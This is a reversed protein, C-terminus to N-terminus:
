TLSSHLHYPKPRGVCVLPRTKLRAGYAEGKAESARLQNVAEMLWQPCHGAKRRETGIPESRFIFMCGVMNDFGNKSQFIVM